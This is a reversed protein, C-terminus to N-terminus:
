GAALAREFKAVASQWDHARATAYAADSMRRWTDADAEFLEVLRDTMAGVDDFPVLFGNVGDEIIDLPGGVPTSIVPCRCAMAELMPLSFGDNKSSCLWVDCAAYIDRIRDQAPMRCYRTGQPLPIDDGVDETGFAVLRADPMRSQLGHFAAIADRINKFPAKNYILGVTPRAARMRPAAHFQAMDVGNHVLHVDTAGFEKELMDSLWTSITIKRNDIRLVADVRPKMAANFAEYGQVFHVKRGKAAPMAMMWEVTEWWTAIIVDADPCDAARIPGPRDLRKVLHEIADYHSGQRTAPPPREIRALRRIRDRLAPKPGQAIVVTVQHGRQELARAYISAVRAGGSFDAVPILMTIKM